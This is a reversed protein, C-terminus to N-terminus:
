CIDDDELFLCIIKVLVHWVINLNEYHIIDYAVILARWWIGEVMCLLFNTMWVKKKIMKYSDLHM